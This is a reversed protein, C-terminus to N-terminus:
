GCTGKTESGPTDKPPIGIVLVGAGRAVDMADMVTQVKVKPDGKIFIIKTPRGDYVSHLEQPLDARPVVKTNIAYCGNEGVELVIQDSKANATAVQPNPDPMQLDIAKRMSPLAAMFTILLVLLVDIFPTVNPENNLGGGGGASMSM